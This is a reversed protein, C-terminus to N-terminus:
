VVPGNGLESSLLGSAEAVSFVPFASSTDNCIHHQGVNSNVDVKQHIWTFLIAM